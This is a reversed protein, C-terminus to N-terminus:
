LFFSGPANIKGVFCNSLVNLSWNVEQYSRWFNTVLFSKTDYDELLNIVEKFVIQDIFFEKLGNFFMKWIPYQQM